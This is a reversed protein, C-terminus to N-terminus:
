EHSKRITQPVFSGVEPNGMAWCANAKETKNKRDNVLQNDLQKGKGLRQQM